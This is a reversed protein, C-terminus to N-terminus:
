QRKRIAIFLLVGVIAIAIIIAIGIGLIYSETAPLVTVPYPSATPSTNSVTFHAEASSSGYSNSGDFNAIVTFDGPIDPTWTLAYTGSLDSNATGIQRNNGNSDVVNISVMIGQVDTPKPQQEYLYEMWAQQNTDLVCPIGNIYGMKQAIAVAGPSQDTVTGSITFSSGMSLGSQPASVTIGSPGKGICYVNNDYENGTVIYGDAISLGMNFDLLKWIEKGDTLNVCRVYSERWLPKTPSHENSYLLATGDCIAGISLPMNEGYSAEYPAAATSNYVWLLNGNTIDYAAMTGGYQSTQILKGYYVNQSLGYYDMQHFSITPGWLLSGTELSYCWSQGLQKCWLQFTQSTYDPSTISWTLNQGPVPVTIDKTMLLTAGFGLNNAQTNTNATSPNYGTVHEDIRMTWVTFTNGSGLTRGTTYDSSTLDSMPATMYAGFIEKPVRNSDQLVSIDGPLNKQVTLNMTYGSRPLIDNPFVLVNGVATSNNPGVVTWSTDNVADITAGFRMKWQQQNTGEPSLPPISQSSNWCLLNGTAANYSYRLLDGDQDTVATGSPVNILKLMLNGTAPDLFYWTSGQVMILYSLIGEGNVSNYHYLQGQTLTPYTNSLTYGGANTYPNNLGNDTGNKYWLQQGNFLNVAYYGYQASDAVAPASYYIIGNMIIPASWPSEYDNVDAPVGSWQADPIGGARGPTIPQSWLIHATLPVRGATQFNNVLWSGKLWNSGIVSWGRNAANIPTTWYDTPLASEQWTPVKEQQVTLTCPPSTSGAFFDGIYSVGQGTNFGGPGAEITNGPWSFVISYTGVQDPTFSQWDSGVASSCTWPGIIVTEGNPKTINLTFGTFRQGQTGASTPSYRDVWVVINTYQGVGVKAPTCAVYAHTPVTWPPTHANASPLIILIASTIITAMLILAILSAKTKRLFSNM